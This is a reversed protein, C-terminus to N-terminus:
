AHRAAGRWGQNMGYLPGTCHGSSSSTDLTLAHGLPGTGRTHVRASQGWHFAHVYFRTYGSLPTPPTRVAPPPGSDPLSSLSGPVSGATPQVRGTRRQGRFVNIPVISVAAGLGTSASPQKPMTNTNLRQWLGQTRQQRIHYPLVHKVMMLMRLTRTCFVVYKQPTQPGATVEM